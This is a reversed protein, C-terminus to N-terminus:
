SKIVKEKHGGGVVLRPSGAEVTVQTVGVPICPAVHSWGVKMRDAPQRITMVKLHFPTESEDWGNFTHYEWSVTNFKIHRIIISIFQRFGLFDV